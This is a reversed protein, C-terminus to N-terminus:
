TISLSRSPRTLEFVSWELRSRVIFFFTMVQGSMMVNSNFVEETADEFEENEDMQINKRREQEFIGFFQSRTRLHYKWINKLNQTM